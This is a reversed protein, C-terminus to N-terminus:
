KSLRVPRLMYFIWALRVASGKEGIWTTPFLVVKVEQTVKFLLNDSLFFSFFIWVKTSFINRCISKLHIVPSVFARVCMGVTRLCIWPGAKMLVLDIRDPWRQIFAPGQNWSWLRFSFAASASVTLSLQFSWMLKVSRKVKDKIYIRRKM